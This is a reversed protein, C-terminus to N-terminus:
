GPYQGTACTPLRQAYARQRDSLQKVVMRRKGSIHEFADQKAKPVATRPKLLISKRKASCASHGGDHVCASASLEVEAVLSIRGKAITSFLGLSRVTALVLPPLFVTTNTDKAAGEALHTGREDCLNRSHVTDPSPNPRSLLISLLLLHCVGAQM